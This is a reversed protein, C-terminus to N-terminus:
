LTDLIVEYIRDPDTVEALSVFRVSLGEEVILRRATEIALRTKGAGGPGILTVLRAGREFWQLLQRTETNRGFFRTLKLPLAAVIESAPPTPPNAPAPEASPKEPQPPPPTTVAAPKPVDVRTHQPLQAVFTRLYTSPTQELERLRKRFRHYHQKALEYQGTVAYQRILDYAVEEQLPAVAAARLAYELARETERLAELEGVLRRLLRVYLTVLRERELLVWDEYYGPLLEGKYLDIAATLAAIREESSAADEARRAMALFAQVDTQIALPNLQVQAHTAIIVEGASTDPPELQKRLSSLAQRLNHRGREIDSDPWLLELLYERPQPQEHFALCAFLAGAKTTPFRLITQQEREAKLGGLLEIRWPTNM